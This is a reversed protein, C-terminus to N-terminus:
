RYFRVAENVKKDLEAIAENPITLGDRLTCADQVAQKLDYAQKRSLEGRKQAEAIQEIMAIQGGMQEILSLVGMRYLNQKTKMAQFNVSVDNIKQIDKYSDRWKNLLTIYFAEDYLMAGKVELVNLQRAVRQTYRQEYRLVNRGEYLEPIQEHKTKQERNKDYFAMRLGTKNYYISHPEALRTANKLLGLHNLYVDTPHKVVINQALDLRTVTAKDLPLHLTDSLKELARQTDKRGMAQFNNGLYWKCLSGDKVKVQYANLSVKLNGLTGTIVEGDAFSHVAISDGDLNCPIESLFDVGTVEVRTLRLNVTDFMITVSNTVFYLKSYLNAQM